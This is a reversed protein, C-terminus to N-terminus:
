HLCTEDFIHSLSFFFFHQKKMEKSMLHEQEQRWTTKKLHMAQRLGCRCLYEAATLMWPVVSAHSLIVNEEVTRWTAFDSKGFGHYPSIGTVSILIHHKCLIVFCCFAFTWIFATLTLIVAYKIEKWTVTTVVFVTLRIIWRRAPGKTKLSMNNLASRKQM